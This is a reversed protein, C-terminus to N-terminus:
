RVGPVPSLPRIDAMAELSTSSGEIAGDGAGRTLMPRGTYLPSEKRSCATSDIRQWVNVSKSSRIELLADVSRVSSIQRRYAARSGRTCYQRLGLLRPPMLFAFRVRSLALPSYKRHAAWSSMQSGVM